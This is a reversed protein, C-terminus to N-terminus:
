NGFTLGAPDGANPNPPPPNRFILILGVVIGFVGFTTVGLGFGRTMGVALAAVLGAALLGPIWWSRPPRNGEADVEIKRGAKLCCQKYKIGSGCPCPANRSIENM